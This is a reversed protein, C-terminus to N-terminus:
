RSDLHENLDALLEDYFVDTIAAADEPTLLAGTADLHAILADSEGEELKRESWEMYGPLDMLRYDRLNAHSAVARRVIERDEERSTPPM